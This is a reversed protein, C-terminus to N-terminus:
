KDDNEGDNIFEPGEPHVLPNYFGCRPGDIEHCVCKEPTETWMCGGCDRIDLCTLKTKWDKPLTKYRMLLRKVKV